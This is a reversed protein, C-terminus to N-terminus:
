MTFMIDENAVIGVEIDTVGWLELGRLTLSRYTLGRQAVGRFAVGSLALGSLAVGRLTADPKGISWRFFERRFFWCFGSRGGFM